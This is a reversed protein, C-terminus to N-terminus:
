EAPAMSLEAIARGVGRMIDSREVTIDGSISADVEDRIAAAETKSIDLKELAQSVLNRAVTTSLYNDLAPDTFATKFPTVQANRHGGDSTIVVKAGFDDIRDSLTKDSFGGFVPTYPAGIRKAAEIWYIQAPINPMNLAIRDGAKVGLKTLAASRKVVELMLTKRSISYADVPGGRADNLSGDWRDGEFILATEAGHGSLVHRDIENFGANTLGGEFWKFFPPTDDNYARKWPTFADDFDPTVAELTSADFGSWQGSKSDKTVWAGREGHDPLFWHIATAAIKGHFTGPDAACAERANNWDHRTRILDDHM